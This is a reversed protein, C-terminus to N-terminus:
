IKVKYIKDNKLNVKFPKTLKFKKIFKNSANNKGNKGLRNHSQFIYLNSLLKIKLLNNLFLLGTEVLVRSLNYKRFLKFLKIFDQKDKLSKVNIIKVKKMKLFNLKNVNVVKTVLFIRRNTNEKFLKINRKLSLNLDIIILDPKNNNFGEIRCNLLSNDKNISRSTSLIADYESRLLHARKRSLFNTIWRSKKNITYYDKSIAIKADIM